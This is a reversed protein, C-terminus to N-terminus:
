KGDVIDYLVARAREGGITGLYYIAERRLEYGDNSRAIGALFDIAKDNGIEAISYFVMKRREPNGAPLSRYLTILADFAKEKDHAAGGIYDIAFLQMEESTDNKAIELFVPLIDHRRYESLGEIAAVRLVKKEKPDVAIRRLTTFGTEDEGTMGVAYLSELRLRTEEDLDDDEDLSGLRAFPAPSRLMRTLNRLKMMPAVAPIGARTITLLSDPPVAVVAPPAPTATAVGPTVAFVMSRALLQDMDALADDFYRSEKHEKLFRKYEAVAKRSDTDRWSYATWYDADDRYESEPYKGLLARFKKRAEEWRERLILDYAEKYMGYAPDDQDGAAM